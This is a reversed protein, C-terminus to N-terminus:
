RSALSCLSDTNMHAVEVEKKRKELEKMKEDRISQLERLLESERKSLLQRTNECATKIMKEASQAQSSIEQMKKDILTTFSLLDSQSAKVKALSDNLQSKLQAVVQQLRKVQHGNHYDIICESCIFVSCRDCFFNM